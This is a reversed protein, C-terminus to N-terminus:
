ACITFKSIFIMLNIANDIKLKRVLAQNPKKNIQAIFSNKFLLNLLTSNIITM